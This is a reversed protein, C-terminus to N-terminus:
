PGMSQRSWRQRRFLHLRSNHRLDLSGRGQAGAARAACVAEFETETRHPKGKTSVRSVQCQMPADLCGVDGDGPAGCHWVKLTSDSSSTVVHEGNFKLSWIPGKHAADLSFNCAHTVPDWWKISADEGVSVLRDGMLACDCVSGIHGDLVYVSCRGTNWNRDVLDWKRFVDKWDKRDEQLEARFRSASFPHEFPRWDVAEGWRRQFLRQWLSATVNCLARFRKCTAAVRCLVTAVSARQLVQVVIEDPLTHLQSRQAPQCALPLAAHPDTKRFMSELEDDLDSDGEILAGAVGVPMRGAM